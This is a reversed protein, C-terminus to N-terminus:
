KESSMRDCVSCLLSITTLDLRASPVLIVDACKKLLSASSCRTASMKGESVFGVVVLRTLCRRSDCCCSQAQLRQKRM